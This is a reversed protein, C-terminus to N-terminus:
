KAPACCRVGAYPWPIDGPPVSVTTCSAIDGITAGIMACNTKPPDECADIWEPVNGVMDYLGPYGGECKKNVPQPDMDGEVCIGAVHSDGYAYRLTGGHSCAMAWQSKQPDTADAAALPAGHLGGCLDKGAWLCYAKAACWDISDVPYEPTVTRPPFGSAPDLPEFSREVQDCFRVGTPQGAGGDPGIAQMFRSYQARTVETSDICFDGIRVM